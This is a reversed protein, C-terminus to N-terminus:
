PGCPSGESVRLVQHHSKGTLGCLESLRKGLGCRVLCPFAEPFQTEASAASAEQPWLQRLDRRGHASTPPQRM